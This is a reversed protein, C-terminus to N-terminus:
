GNCGCNPQSSNATASNKFYQDWIEKVRYHNGSERASMLYVYRMIQDIFNMPINCEDHNLSGIFGMFTSYIKCLPFVSTMDYKDKCSCLMLDDENTVVYVFLTENLTDAIINASDITVDLSSVASDLEHYYAVLTVDTHQIQDPNTSVPQKTIFYKYIGTGSQSEQSSTYQAKITISGDNNTKAHTIKIM